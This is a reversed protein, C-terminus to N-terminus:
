LGATSGSGEECDVNHPWDCVLLTPNFLLNAPCTMKHKIGAMDCMIFGKCTDPDPHVGAGNVACIDENCDVNQPWDCVRLTANFLLNSPCLMKHKIGAVDCMIYGKCTDPDAHVGAGNVTCFNDSASTGNQFVAALVASCLLLFVFFQINMGEM